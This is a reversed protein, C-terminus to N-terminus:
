IEGKQIKWFLIAEQRNKPLKISIFIFCFGVLCLIADVGFINIMNNQILSIPTTGLYIYHFITSLIFLSGGVLFFEKSAQYSNIRYFSWFLTFLWTNYFIGQQWLVRDQLDFPLLWQLALIVGSAPIVGIMTALSFKGMWHYFTIKDEYHKAKKELWLMVGFGIAIGCLIMMLGVVIRSFIDIGSLFHLFFLSEAIFAPLVNDLAKKESIVEGTYASITISPQNFFGGNLFPKYPNYGVIEVIATEDKWNILKVQKFVLHENISSAKILLENIPKMEVSNGSSKVPKSQPFLVTGVVGDISNAEGHSLIKAMPGSGVLGINMVAGSLTILFFPLFLWTFVKVHITSFLAQQNKAKYNFKFIYILILGTIILVMVGVAVFGFSLRGLLKLPQGYHLENFFEALYSQTKDENKLLEKTHPNFFVPSVFRHTIGVAPDGVRGPLNIIINNKPFNPNNLVEDVMYNYDITKIDVAGIHRSPKEWAQIYPLFIAFVGFFVALYMIISFVIGSAIHIRFLRQKFLKSKSNEM